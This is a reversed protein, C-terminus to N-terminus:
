AREGPPRPTPSAVAGIWEDEDGPTATPTPPIFDEDAGIWAEEDPPGAAAGAAAPAGRPQDTRRGDAEPHLEAQAARQLAAGGSAADQPLRVRFLAGGGAARELELDGGHDRVIARGLALGLGTGKERTTFFPRFIQERLEDAVGPGQDEVDIWAEQGQWRSRLILEGGQPMAQCANRLLNLLVQRLRQRDGLVPGHEPGLDLTLQCGRSVPDAQCLGAAEELLPRLAFPRLELPKRRAFDLFENVVRGLYGLERGIREAHSRASSGEALEELLLGTFLEMGGLPNRVEHAVGSLMMQLDQERRRIALRMDDLARGLQAIEDDGQLSIDRDLQGSGIAAAAAALRTVPRTIRHSVALSLALLVALVALGAGLYSLAQRDLSAFLGSSGEVGVVAVVAETEPLTIPAYGMLYRVGHRGTFLLSATTAGGLAARIEAQDQALEPLPAGVPVDPRTDVRARLEGDFVVIRRVGTAEQLQLLKRRLNAHVRTMDPALRQIRGADPGGSFLGAAARAVTTLRQGLEEVAEARATAYAWLGGAGLLLATPVLYVLLLRNRLKAM